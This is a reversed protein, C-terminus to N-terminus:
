MTTGIEDAAMRGALGMGGTGTMTETEIGATKQHRDGDNGIRLTEEGEGHMGTM